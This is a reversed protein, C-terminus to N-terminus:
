TYGCTGVVRHGVMVFVLPVFQAKLKGSMTSLRQAQISSQAKLGGEVNNFVKFKLHIALANRM